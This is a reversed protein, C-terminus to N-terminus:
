RKRKARVRTALRRDLFFSAIGTVLSISIIVPMVIDSTTPLNFFVVTGDAWARPPAIVQFTPIFYATYFQLFTNEVPQVGVTVNYPIVYGPTSPTFSWSSSSSFPEYSHDWRAIQIVSSFDLLNFRVTDNGPVVSNFFKAGNDFYATGSTPLNKLPQVIYASGLRNIEVTGLRISDSVSMSLFALNAQVLAGPNKNVGTLVVTYNEQFSWLQTPPVVLLTRARLQFLDIRATPVLKQMAAAVPRMVVTSNSTDLYVNLPPLSTFNERVELHLNMTVTESAVNM